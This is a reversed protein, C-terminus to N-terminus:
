ASGAPDDAPAAILDMLSLCSAIQEASPRKFQARNRAEVVPTTEVLKAEGAATLHATVFRRNRPDREREILGADAMCM